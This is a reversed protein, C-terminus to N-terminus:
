PGMGGPTQIEWVEDGDEDGDDGQGDHDLDLLEADIVEYAEYPDAATGAASTDARDSTDDAPFLAELPHPADQGDEHPAGSSSTGAPLAPVSPPAM